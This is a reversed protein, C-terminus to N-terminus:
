NEVGITAHCLSLGETMMNEPGTPVAVGQGVLQPQFSSDATTQAQKLTTPTKELIECIPMVHCLSLGETM